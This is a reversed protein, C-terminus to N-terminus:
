FRVTKTVRNSWPQVITSPYQQSVQNLGNISQTNPWMIKWWDDCGSALIDGETSVKDDAGVGARGFGTGSGSVGRGSTFQFGGRTVSILAEVNVRM